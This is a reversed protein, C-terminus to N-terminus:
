GPTAGTARAPRWIWGPLHAVLACIEDLDAVPEGM